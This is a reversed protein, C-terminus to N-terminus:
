LFALILAALAVRYAIFVYLPYRRVFILLIHIAALGSILAAASGVLLEPGWSALVGEAGLDVLKKLGSGLLVPVSLLFGFRAAEERSLGLFLGGAITMGSRSMGPVLALAQFLGVAFGKWIKVAALAPGNSPSRLDVSRPSLSETVVSDRVRSNAQRAVLEAAFMVASGALLAYAVLTASRFTTEMTHELLAGAIIAPVTGAALALLLRRESREGLRILDKWFYAIVAVVTALQLVADVALGHDPSIGFFARALILHGTSSVPLFETAGQVLGLIIFSILDSM